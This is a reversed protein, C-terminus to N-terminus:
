FGRCNDIVTAATCDLCLDNENPVPCPSIEVISACSSTTASPMTDGGTGSPSGDYQIRRLESGVSYLAAAVHSDTGLLQWTLVFDRHAAIAALVCDRAAQRESVTADIALAGCSFTTAPVDRAIVAEFRCDQLQEGGERRDDGGCAALGLMVLTIRVHSDYKSQTRAPM